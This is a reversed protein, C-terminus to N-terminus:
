SALDKFSLGSGLVLALLILAILAPMIVMTIILSVRPAARAARRRAQQSYERRMDAALANLTDALPAGLEEAQIIATVFLGMTASHPNRERLEAFAQRRRIGLDMRHLTRQVEEALPGKLTEGVRQLAQRFGLGATVTIALIDLFDPLEQEIQRQRRQAESYLWVVPYTVMMAALFLTLLSGKILGFLLAAVALTTYAGQLRLFGTLDYGRPQGASALLRLIQTRWAAPLLSAIIPGSWRGLAAYFGAVLSQKPKRLEVDPILGDGVDYAPTSRMMAFGRTLVVYCALAAAAVLFAM